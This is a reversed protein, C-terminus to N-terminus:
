GNRAEMETDIMTRLRDMARATQSKVNGESCEMAQATEAVSLQEYYRLVLVTRQGSSLRGLVKAMDMHAEVRSAADLQGRDDGHSRNRWWRELGARRFRQNSRNVVARRLYGPLNDIGGRKWRAFVTAFADATIDEAAHRDGSLRLALRYMVPAHADYAAAFEVDASKDAAVLATTIPM